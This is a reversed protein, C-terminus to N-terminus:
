GSFELEVDGYIAHGQRWEGKEQRRRRTERREARVNTGDGDGSKYSERRVMGSVNRTATRAEPNAVTKMRKVVKGRANLLNHSQNKRALGTVIAIDKENPARIGHSGRGAYWCM